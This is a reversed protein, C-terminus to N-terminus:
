PLGPDMSISCLSGYEALEMSLYMRRDYEGTSYVNLIGPHQCVALNQAERMLRLKALAIDPIDLSLLKLAVYRDFEVDRAKYIVAYKSKGLESVIEYM